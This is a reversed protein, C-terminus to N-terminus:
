SRKLKMWILDSWSGALGLAARISGSSSAADAEAEELFYHVVEKDQEQFLVGILPQERPVIFNTTRSIYQEPM